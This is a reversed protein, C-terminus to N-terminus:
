HAGATCLVQKTVADSMRAVQEELKEPFWLDDAILPLLTNGRAKRIGANRAAGVGLNCQRM